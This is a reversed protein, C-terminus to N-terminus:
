QSILLWQLWCFFDGFLRMWDRNGSIHGRNWKTSKRLTLFQKSQASCSHCGVLGVMRGEAWARPHLLLCREPTHLLLLGLIGQSFMLPYLILCICMWLSFLYKRKLYLSTFTGGFCLPVAAAKVTAKWLVLGVKRSMLFMINRSGQGATSFLLVLSFDAKLQACYFGSMLQSNQGFIQM